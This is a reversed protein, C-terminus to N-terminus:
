AMFRNAITTPPAIVLGCCIVSRKTEANRYNSSLIFLIIFTDLFHTELDHLASKEDAWFRFIFCIDIAGKIFFVCYFHLLNAVFYTWVASPIYKKLEFLQYLLPTTYLVDLFQEILCAYFPSLLACSILDFSM